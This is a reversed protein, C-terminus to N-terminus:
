GLVETFLQNCKEEFEEKTGDNYLTYDCNEEFYANSKQAGIRSRAYEESIGERLMLRAVRMEEPATIAVNCRTKKGYPIDLLGIADIAALTGGQLAHQTLEAELALSVYKHTIANLDQLAAPDAFVIGGLKKRDLVAGDYVEGFRATLEARMEASSETLAHYIEDCDLILAGRSRLVNLATTKGCGTGGTIGIITLSERMTELLETEPLAGHRLIRYPTASLDVITSEKGVGCRGGDIVAGIKGDFYDMVEGATKPSPAGSPNASPAALPLHTERLLQLTLPHDPCRLGVTEGGARVIDPVLPKSKLIITLPGPWYKAALAKAMPPVAQCYREMAGDDAVMLSLAKQEPRGKVEYIARVANEDLGNGALGYVTETPVAVLGGARLIEAANEITETLLLTKM